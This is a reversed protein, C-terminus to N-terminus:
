QGDPEAARLNPSAALQEPKVMGAVLIDCDPPQPAPGASFEITAPTLQRLDDLTHPTPPNPFHIKIPM